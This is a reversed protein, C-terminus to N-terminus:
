QGGEDVEIDVTAWALFRSRIVFEAKKKAQLYPCNVFGEPEVKELDKQAKRRGKGSM